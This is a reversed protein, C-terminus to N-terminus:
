RVFGILTATDTLASGRAYDSTGQIIIKMPPLDHTTHNMKHFQRACGDTGNYYQNHNNQKRKVHLPQKGFRVFLIEARLSKGPMM